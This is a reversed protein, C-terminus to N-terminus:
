GNRNQRQHTNYVSANNSIATWGANYNSTSVTYDSCYCSGECYCSALSTWCMCSYAEVSNLKNFKKKVKKM